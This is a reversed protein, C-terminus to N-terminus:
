AIPGWVRVEAYSIMAATGRASDYGGYGAAVAASGGVTPALTLPLYHGETARREVVSGTASLDTDATPDAARAWSPVALAAVCAVVIYLKTM